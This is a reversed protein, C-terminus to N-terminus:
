GAPVPTPSPTVSPKVPADDRLIPSSVKFGKIVLYLGFFAEWIIEPITLVGQLTSQRDYVGLLAGSAAIFAFAGAVMAFQASWRPVLGSRFMLYGLILGNGIGACFGPGLLFTWDKVAVLSRAAISLTGADAGTGALDQRLTVVAM